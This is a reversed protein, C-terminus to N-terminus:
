EYAYGVSVIVPEELVRYWGHTDYTSNSLKVFNM